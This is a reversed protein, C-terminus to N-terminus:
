QRWRSVRPQRSLSLWAERKRATFPFADWASCLWPWLSLLHGLGARWQPCLVSCRACPLLAAWPSPGPLWDACRGGTEVSCLGACSPPFSSDLLILLLMGWFVPTDLVAGTGVLWLPSGWSVCSGSCFGPSAVEVSPQTGVQGVSQPQDWGALTLCSGCPWFVKLLLVLSWCWLGSRECLCLLVRCGVLSFAAFSLNDPFSLGYHPSFM